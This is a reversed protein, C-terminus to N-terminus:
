STLRWQVQHDFNQTDGTRASAPLDSHAASVSCLSALPSHQGPPSVGVRLLVFRGLSSIGCCTSPDLLRSHLSRLHSTEAPCRPCRGSAPAQVTLPSTLRPRHRSSPGQPQPLPSAAESGHSPPLATLVSFASASPGLVHPATRPIFVCWPPPPGRPRERSRDAGPRPSAPHARGVGTDM